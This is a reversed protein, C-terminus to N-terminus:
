PSSTERGARCELELFLPLEAVGRAADVAQAALAATRAGSDGHALSNRTKTLAALVQHESRTVLRRSLGLCNMRVRGGENRVLEVLQGLTARQPIRDSGVLQEAALRILGEAAGVAKLGMGIGLTGRVKDPVRLEGTWRDVDALLEQRVDGIRSM